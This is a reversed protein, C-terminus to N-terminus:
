FIKLAFNLEKFIRHVVTGKQLLLRLPAEWDFSTKLIQPAISFLESLLCSFSYTQSM